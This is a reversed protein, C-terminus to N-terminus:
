RARIERTTRSSQTRTLHSQFFTPRCHSLASSIPLALALARRRSSCFSSSSSSSSSSAPRCLFACHRRLAPPPTVRAGFRCLTCGHLRFPEPAQFRSGPQPTQAPTVRARTRTSRISLGDDHQQIRIATHTSLMLDPREYLAKGPPPQFAPLGVYGVQAQPPATVSFTREPYYWHNVFGYQLATPKHLAMGPHLRRACRPEVRRRRSFPLAGTNTEKEEGGDGGGRWRGSVTM